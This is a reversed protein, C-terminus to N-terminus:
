QAKSKRPKYFLPNHQKKKQPIVFKEEQSFYFKKGVCARRRVASRISEKPMKNWEGALVYDPFVAFIKGSLDFQYIVSTTRGM